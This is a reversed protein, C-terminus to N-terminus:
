FFTSFNVDDGVFPVFTALWITYKPTLVCRNIKAKSNQNDCQEIKCEVHQQNHIM